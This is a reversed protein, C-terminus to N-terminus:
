KGRIIEHEEVLVKEIENRVLSKSDVGSICLVDRWTKLKILLDDYKTQLKAVYELDPMYAVTTLMSNNEKLLMSVQEHLIKNEECLRDIEFQLCEIDTNKEVPKIVRIGSM